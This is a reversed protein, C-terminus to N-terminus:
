GLAAAHLEGEAAEELAVLFSVAAETDPDFALVGHNVLLLAQTGAREALLGVVASVPEQGAEQLGGAAALV